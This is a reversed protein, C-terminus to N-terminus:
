MQGASVIALFSASWALWTLNAPSRHAYADGEHLAEGEEAFPM